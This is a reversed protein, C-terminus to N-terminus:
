YFAEYGKKRIESKIIEIDKLADQCLQISNDIRESYRNELVIRAQEKNVVNSNILKELDIKFNNWMLDGPEKKILIIMEYLEQFDIFLKDGFAQHYEIMTNSKYVNDSFIFTSLNLGEKYIEYALSNNLLNYDEIYENLMKTQMDLDILIIKRISKDKKYGKLWEVFYSFLTAALAGIIGAILESPVLYTTEEGM